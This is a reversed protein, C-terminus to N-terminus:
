FELGEQRAADALAKVRGHFLKGNRDFVVKTIKKAKAKKGIETGVWAAKETMNGKITKNGVTTIHVLTKGVSDDILQAVVHLNSIRVSLRPRLTTGIVKSRVRNKRRALNQTKLFLRNM